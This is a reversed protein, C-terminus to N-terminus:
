WVIVACAEVGKREETMCFCFSSVWFLLTFGLMVGGGIQLFQPIIDITCSEDYLGGVVLMAINVGLVVLCALVEAPRM